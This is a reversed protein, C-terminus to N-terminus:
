VHARGIQSLLFDKVKDQHDQYKCALMVKFNEIFQSGDENKYAKNITSKTIGIKLNKTAIQTYLEQLEIPQRSIFDQIVAIDKDSGTNNIKLYEMIDDTPMFDQESVEKQVKKKSLGTVINTDYVFKLVKKLLQNDENQKLITEKVKKSSTSEIDKIIELVKIM